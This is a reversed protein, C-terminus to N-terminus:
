KIGVFLTYLYKERNKKEEKRRGQYFIKMDCVLYVFYSQRKKKNVFHAIYYQIKKGKKREKKRGGESVIWIPYYSKRCYSIGFKTIHRQMENSKM